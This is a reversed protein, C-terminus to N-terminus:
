RHQITKVSFKVACSNITPAIILKTTAKNEALNRIWSFGNYM